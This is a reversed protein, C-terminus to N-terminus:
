RLANVYASRLDANLIDLPTIARNPGGILPTIKTRIM